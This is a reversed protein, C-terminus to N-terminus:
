RVVFAYLVAAALLAVIPALTVLKRREARDHAETRAQWAAWREDSGPALPDCLTGTRTSVVLPLVLSSKATM